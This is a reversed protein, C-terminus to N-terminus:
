YNLRLTVVDCDLFPDVIRGFVANTVDEAVVHYPYVEVVRRLYQRITLVVEEVNLSDLLLIDGILVVELIVRIQELFLDAKEIM